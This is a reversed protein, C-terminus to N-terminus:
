CTKTKLAAAAAKNEQGAQQRSVACPNVLPPANQPPGGVAYQRSPATSHQMCILVLSGKKGERKFEAAKRRLEQADRSGADRTGTAGAAHAAGV